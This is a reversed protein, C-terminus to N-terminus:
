SNLSQAHPMNAEWASTRLPEERMGAGSDPVRSSGRLVDAYLSTPHTTTETTIKEETLRQVRIFSM